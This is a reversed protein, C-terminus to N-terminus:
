LIRKRQAWEGLYIGDCSARAEILREVDESIELSGGVQIDLRFRDALNKWDESFRRWSSM